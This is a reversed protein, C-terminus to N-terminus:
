RRLAPGGVDAHLLRVPQTVNLNAGLDTLKRRTEELMGGSPDTATLEVDAGYHALNAGTGVGVELTRGMARTGVWTRGHSLLRRELWATSADYRPAHRDWVESRTRGAM